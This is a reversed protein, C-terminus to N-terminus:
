PATTLSVQNGYATFSSNTAYARVYYITGSILGTILSTFIGTETGDTTKNDLLTPNPYTSWCVGRATITGGGSSIINGGSKASNGTIASIATTTLIPLVTIWGPKNSATFQLFQGPQGAAVLEWSTGNWYQMDGQNVGVPFEPKNLIQADGTTANWDANVNKEAGVDIGALKISDINPYNNKATNALVAANNTVSTQFDSIQSSTISIGSSRNWATFGPDAETFSTLFNPTWNEWKLTTSNYKLM